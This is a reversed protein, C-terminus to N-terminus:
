IRARFTCRFTLSRAKQLFFCKQLQRKCKHPLCFFREFARFLWEYSTADFRAWVGIQLGRESQFRLPPGGVWVNEVELGLEGRPPTVRDPLEDNLRLLCSGGRSSAMLLTRKVLLRKFRRSLQVLAPKHASHLQWEPAAGYVNVSLGWFFFFFSPAKKLPHRSYNCTCM